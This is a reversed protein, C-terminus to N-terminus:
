GRSLFFNTRREQGITTAPGHGPWVRTGDPLALLKERISRALLRGDGGPMDTRGVSGAFLVDGSFLDGSAPCYLCLGGPSHGPTALIAFTLRGLSLEDGDDLLRDAREAVQLSVGLMASLNASPSGFADAEARGIMIPVDPWATRLEGVGAIHDMHGHTLVVGAPRINNSRLFRITEGQGAGPDVILGNGNPDSAVYCNEQFQGSCVFRNVQLTHDEMACMTIPIM